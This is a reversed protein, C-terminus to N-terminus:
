GGPGADADADIKDAVVQAVQDAFSINSAVNAPRLATPAIGAWEKRAENRVKKFSELNGLVAFVKAALIKGADTDSQFHVGAVERNQGIRNAMATLPARMATAMEGEFISGVALAILHSQFSHNNPYSAHAPTLITPMLPPFVQIPRARGYKHKWYMGVMQGVTIGIAILTATNRRGLPGVMLLNAWYMELNQAQAVIEAGRCLRLSRLKLLDGIETNLTMASDNPADLPAQTVWDKSGFEALVVQARLQPDWADDPFAAGSFTFFQGAPNAQELEELIGDL